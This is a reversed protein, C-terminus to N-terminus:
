YDKVSFRWCALGLMLAIFAGSVSLSEVWNLSASSLERTKALSGTMFDSYLLLSGLYDLDATRPLIFHLVKVVQAIGGDSMRDEPKVQGLQEIRGMMDFLEYGKGVLFFVFWAVCTILISVIISRTLVSMLTSVAYLIAFFFTLVFIVLLFSNAWIGTRLGLVLWIGGIAYANNLFVFTLGGLYKYILLMNRHIPKVLLLDITGKRLMNPIFFATIIVGVMLGVLSGWFICQQTVSFLFAGPPMAIPIGSVELPLAGYFLSPQSVWLRASGPAPATKVDVYLREPVAEMAKLSSPDTALRIDQIRILDLDELLAFVKSVETALRKPDNRMQEAIEPHFSRSITLLYDSAYSDPEGRLLQIRVFEFQPVLRKKNLRFIGGGGEEKPDILVEPKLQNLYYHLEGDLIERMTREASLPRLSVGGVFIIALTSLALMVYLVKADLAERISDKLIALYKM